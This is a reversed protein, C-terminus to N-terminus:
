PAISSAEFNAVAARNWGDQPGASASHAYVFLTHNGAPFDVLLSFGARTFREDGMTRAVDPRNLGYSAAGLFRARPQGPEGDMYVHVADIGTGTTAYPNVAWGSIESQVAITTGPLPREVVVQIGGEQAGASWLGSAPVFWLATGLLVELLLRDM